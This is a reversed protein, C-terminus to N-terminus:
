SASPSPSAISLFRLPVCLLPSQGRKREFRSLNPWVPDLKTQMSSPWTWEGDSISKKGAHRQIFPLRIVNVVRVTLTSDCLLPSQGRKREFRSLNPWLPDLNTQMSSPRTWERDSISRQGTNTQIFPLRIVNAVRVTLTPHHLSPASPCVAHPPSSFACLSVYCHYSAANGKLGPCILGCQTWSLRCAQLGRGDGM